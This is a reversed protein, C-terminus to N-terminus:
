YGGLSAIHDPRDDREPARAKALYPEQGKPQPCQKLKGPFEWSGPLYDSTCVYRRHSQGNMLRFPALGLLPCDIALCAIISPKFTM